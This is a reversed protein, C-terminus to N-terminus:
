TNKLDKSIAATQRSELLKNMMNSQKVVIASNSYVRRPKGKEPQQTETLRVHTTLTLQSTAGTLACSVHHTLTATQWAFSLSRRDADWGPLGDHM